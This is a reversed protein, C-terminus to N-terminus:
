GAADQTQKIIARQVSQMAPTLYEDFDSVVFPGPSNKIFEAAAYLALAAKKVGDSSALVQHAPLAAFAPPVRTLESM